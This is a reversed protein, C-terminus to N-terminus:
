VAKQHNQRMGIGLDYCRALMRQARSSGNEAAQRYLEAATKVDIQTGIGQEYCVALNCLAALSGMEVAQQYLWFALKPDAKVGVGQELCLGLNCTGWSSGLAAAKRFCQYALAEEGPRNSLFVGYACWDDGSMDNEEIQFMSKGCLPCREPLADAFITCGCEEQICRYYM